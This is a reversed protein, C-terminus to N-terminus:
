ASNLQWIAFNLAAAYTVWAVYPIMLWGAARSVPWFKSTTAAIAVWLLVIEAFAWAPMRLGFFIGSWAINLGLQIAFLILPVRAAAWGARSWVLWAAIGMLCYLATWAPAFVWAPPTWAPKSLTPYWTAVSGINFRSGVFGAGLCLAVSVILGIPQRLHNM